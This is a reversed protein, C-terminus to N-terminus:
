WVEEGGEGTVLVYNHGQLEEGVDRFVAVEAGVELGGVEDGAEFDAGFEAGEVGGVGVGAAGGSLQLGVPVVFEDVAAFFCVVDERQDLFEGDADGGGGAVGEVGGAGLLAVSHLVPGADDHPVEAAFVLAPAANALTRVPLASLPLLPGALKGFASPAPSRFITTLVALLARPPRMPKPTDRGFLRPIALPTAPMMMMTMVMMPSPLLPTPTLALPTTLVARM